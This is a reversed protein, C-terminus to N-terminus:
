DYIFPAQDQITKLKKKMARRYKWAHYKELIWKFMQKEM